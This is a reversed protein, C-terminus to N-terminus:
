KIEVGLENIPVVTLQEVSKVAGKSQLVLFAEKKKEHADEQKAFFFDPDKLFGTLVSDNKSSYAIVWIIADM